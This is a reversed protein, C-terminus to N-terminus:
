SNIFENILLSKDDIYALDNGWPKGFYLEDFPVENELLWKNLTLSTYKNILGINGGFSRMNRSTYLIIYTGISHEYKLKDLVKDIPNCKSYDGNIPKDM